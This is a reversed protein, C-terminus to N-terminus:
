IEMSQSKYAVFNSIQIFIPLKEILDFLILLLLYSTIKNFVRSFIINIVYFVPLYIYISRDHDVQLLGNSPLSVIRCAICRHSYFFDNEHCSM